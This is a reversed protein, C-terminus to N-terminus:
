AMRGTSYQLDRHIAQIMDSITDAYIYSGKPTIWQATDGWNSHPGGHVKYALRNFPACIVPSQHILSSGFPTRPPKAPYFSKDGTQSWTPDCFDWAPPRERYNDFMGRLYFQTETDPQTLLVRLELTESIWEIPVAHRRGWAKAAQLEDEVVVRSHQASLM